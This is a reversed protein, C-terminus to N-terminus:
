HQYAQINVEGTHFNVEGSAWVHKQNLWSYRSHNTHFDMNLRLVGNDNTGSEIVKILAGDSTEIKAHLNLFMRGDARVTLYDVGSITGNILSGTVDGEFYIDFKLGEPPLAKKREVFDGFNFGYDKVETLRIKEKFLLSTENLVDNKM